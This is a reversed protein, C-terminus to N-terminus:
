PGDGSGDHGPGTTTSLHHRVGLALPAAGLAALLGAVGFGQRSLRRQPGDGVIVVGRMGSDGYQECEYTSLGDGGFEVAFEYGPNAVQESQYGLDPDVVDYQHPGEWVWRVTTKPSIHIAAPDFALRGDNGDAGVAVTVEDDDRADVVGTYNDTDALWGDFSRPETPESSAASDGPATPTPTANGPLEVAADGVVVAGVMGISEHPSCYYRSVGPSEFAHEFTAGQEGYLESEYAGSSAVVNHSGGDGTWEWRVTAGPDIRVVPPGFGFAGGNGAAGVTVTVTETGTRDVVRGANDTGAFWDTLDTGEQATVPRAAVTLGAGGVAGALFSRRTPM